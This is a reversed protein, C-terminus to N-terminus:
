RAGSESCGYCGKEPSGDANRACSVAFIKIFPDLERNTM